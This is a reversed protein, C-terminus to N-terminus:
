SLFKGRRRVREAPVTSKARFTCGGVDCRLYQVVRLGRRKSSVVKLRGDPCAPCSDGSRRGGLGALLYSALAAPSIGSTRCVSEIVGVDVRHRALLAKVLENYTM